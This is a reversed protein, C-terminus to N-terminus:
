CSGRRGMKEFAEIWVEAKPGANHDYLPGKESSSYPKTVKCDWSDGPAINPGHPCPSGATHLRHRVSDDNFFRIVSGITVEIPNDSDNWSGQGTGDAIRFEVVKVEEQAYGFSHVMFLAVFILFHKM